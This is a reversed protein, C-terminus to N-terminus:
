ILKFKLMIVYWDSSGMESKMEKDFVECETSIYKLIM